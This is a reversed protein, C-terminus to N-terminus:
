FDIGVGVLFQFDSKKPINGQNDEQPSAVYDWVGTLDLDLWSLLENEFKMVMHHKYHGVKSDSLTIKYDFKLDTIKSLEYELKTSVEFAPSYNEKEQNEEVTDYDTYVVAPGGSVSWFTDKDDYITYGIGAGATVQNAINKYRDTYYEASIPTWFFYRTIYRDYKINLRHDNAIETSNKSSIRGLYDINFLSKATRRKLNLQGSYDVQDSNGKRLDFSFTVKGSWFNREDKADPAFSIIKERKFTYQVDGQIITIEDGKLRVIGSVLAFNEINVSLIQHSKIQQVDEFDFTYDGIEDSDFELKENYMAKIKGKFWEGSKTQVWDAEVPTPSLEEWRAKQKKAKAKKDLKKAVQRVEDPTLGSTDEVKHLVDSDEPLEKAVLAFPMIFAFIILYHRFNEM